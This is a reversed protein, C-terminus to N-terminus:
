LFPKIQYGFLEFDWKFKEYIDSILKKSIKKNDYLEKIKELYAGEENITEKFLSSGWIDPIDGIAPSGVKRLLYKFDQKLTEAKTIFNYDLECPKCINFIPGWYAEYHDFLGGGYAIWELFAGFSVYPATRSTRYHLYTGREFRLISTKSSKRTM